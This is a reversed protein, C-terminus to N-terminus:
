GVTELDFRNLNGDTFHGVVATLKMGLTFKHANERLKQRVKLQRPTLEQPHEMEHLTPSQISKPQAGQTEVGAALFDVELAATPLVRIFVKRSGTFGPKAFACLEKEIVETSVQVANAVPHM